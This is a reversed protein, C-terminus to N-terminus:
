TRTHMFDYRCFNAWAAAPVSRDVLDTNGEVIGIVDVLKFSPRLCASFMYIDRCGPCTYTPGAEEDSGYPRHYGNWDPFRELFQDRLAGFWGTLCQSCFTHGCGLTHLDKTVCYCLKCELAEALSDVLSQVDQTLTRRTLARQLDHQLTECRLSLEDNSRELQNVRRTLAVRSKEMSSLMCELDRMHANDNGPIEDTVIYTSESLTQTTQPSLLLDRRESDLITAHRILNTCIEDHADLESDVDEQPQSISLADTDTQREMKFLEPRGAVSSM